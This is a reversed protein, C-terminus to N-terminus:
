AIMTVAKKLAVPQTHERPASKRLEMPQCDPRAIGARATDAAASRADILRRTHSIRRARIRQRTRTRRADRGDPRGVRGGRLHGIPQVPDPVAAGLFRRHRQTRRKVLRDTYMCLLVGEPLQEVTFRRRKEPDVGIPLDVKVDLLQAASGPMAVAPPLHGASSVLLKGDVPNLVAYAVTSIVGPEFHHIKRDLQELVRRPGDYELAYARM